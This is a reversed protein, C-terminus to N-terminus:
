KKLWLEMKALRIFEKISDPFKYYGFATINEKTKKIEGTSIGKIVEAIM